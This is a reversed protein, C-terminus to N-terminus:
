RMSMFKPVYLTYAFHVAYYLIHFAVLVIQWMKVSGSFDWSLLINKVDNNRKVEGFEKCTASGGGRYSICDDGYSPLHGPQTQM